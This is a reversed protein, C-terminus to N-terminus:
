AALSSAALAASSCTVVMVMRACRARRTRERYAREADQAAGALNRRRVWRLAWRISISLCCGPLSRLGLPEGARHVRRSWRVAPM